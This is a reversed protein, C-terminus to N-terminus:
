STKKKVAAVDNIKRLTRGIWYSLTFLFFIAIGKM